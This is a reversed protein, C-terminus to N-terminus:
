RNVQTIWVSVITDDVLDVVIEVRQADYGRWRIERDPGHQAADEYAGDPEALRGTAAQSPVAVLPM